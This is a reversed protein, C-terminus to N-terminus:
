EYVNSMSIIMNGASFTTWSLGLNNDKKAAM